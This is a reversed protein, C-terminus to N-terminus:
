PEYKSITASSTANQQVKAPNGKYSIYGNTAAEAYLEATVNLKAKGGSSAKIKCIETELDFGSFTAGSAVTIDTQDAYGDASITAGEALKASLNKIDADLYLTAGSRLDLKLHDAKLLSTTSVDASGSVTIADLTVYNLTITIKKKTFPEGFLKISLTQDTVVTKVVSPDVGQAIISASEKDSKVLRVIIKDSVDLKTFPDVARSVADQAQLSFCAMVSLWGSLLIKYM